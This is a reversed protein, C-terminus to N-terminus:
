RTQRKGSHDPWRDRFQASRDCFMSVVFMLDREKLDVRADIPDIRTKGGGRRARKRFSYVQGKGSFRSM